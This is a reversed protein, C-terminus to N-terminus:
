RTLGLQGAADLRLQGFPRHPSLPPDVRWAQVPLAGDSALHTLLVIEDAKDRSFGFPNRPGSGTLRPYKADAGAAIVALLEEGRAQMVAVFAPSTPAVMARAEPERAVWKAWDYGYTFDHVYEFGIPTRRGFVHQLAAHAEAHARMREPDGQGERWLSAALYDLDWFLNGPFAEHMAVAVQALGHAFAVASASRHSPLVRGAIETLTSARARQPDLTRWQSGGAGVRRDAVLLIEHAESGEVGPGPGPRAAVSM